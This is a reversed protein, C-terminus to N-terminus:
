SDEGRQFMVIPQAGGVPLLRAALASVAAADDSVPARLAFRDVQYGDVVRATLLRIGPPPPPAVQRANGIVAVESIRHPGSDTGAPEGPGSWPVRPLYVSLPGTAFQGPYAAIARAGSSSGLAAAVGRWDPRQYAANSQVEVQAWVFAGLLVVALAAGALRARRATCAAAVVIALPPWAPMLGRAIYDDHGALALLLPVILVFGAIAAALGAGRLQRRTAGAVLLAIVAAALAAAGLLGYRAGSSLSLQGLGFAVPVEQLRNGLPVDTIFLSPRQLRPLVHPVFPALVVVQLACAALAARDRVRWLLLAGEAAILFGAFYQTLLALASLVAWWALDATSRSRWARAFFLLSAACLVVLLMYERAEQSYWIMFPNVAALAAAVLGARAGVLERGCLYLLPLLGVGLVASLSRLGVAGTGFARAWPWAVLLYLPPNWEASSWASMTRGFTLSLEHAAQSEDLWYSQDGLTAFRLVAALAMLVILIQVEVSAGLVSPWRGTRARTSAGTRAQLVM